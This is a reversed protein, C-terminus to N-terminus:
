HRTTARQARSAEAAASCCAGAVDEPVAEVDVLLRMNQAYMLDQLIM